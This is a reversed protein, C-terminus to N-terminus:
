VNRLEYQRLYNICTLSFRHIVCSFITIKGSVVVAAEAAWEAVLVESAAVQHAAVLAVAELAVLDETAATDEADL